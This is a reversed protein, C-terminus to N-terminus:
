LIQCHSRKKLMKWRMKELVYDAMWEEMVCQQGDPFVLKLMEIPEGKLIM